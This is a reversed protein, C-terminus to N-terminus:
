MLHFVEVPTFNAENLNQKFIVENKDNVLDELTVIEKKFLSYRFVSKGDILIHKNDWIVTSARATTDM